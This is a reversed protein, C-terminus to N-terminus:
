ELATPDGLSECVSLGIHWRICRRQKGYSILDEKYGGVQPIHLFFHSKCPWSAYRLRKWDGRTGQPTVIMHSHTHSDTHHGRIRLPMGAPHKPRISTGGSTYNTGQCAILVSVGPVGVSGNARPILCSSSVPGWKRVELGQMELSGDQVSQGESEHLVWLSPGWLISTILHWNVQFLVSKLSFIFEM